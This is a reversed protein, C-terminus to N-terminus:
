AAETLVKIAHRYGAIVADAASAKKMADLIVDQINSRAKLASQLAGGLLEQVPALNVEPKM